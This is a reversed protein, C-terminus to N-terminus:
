KEDTRETKQHCQALCANCNGGCSGKGAKKDQIIKRVALVVAAILLIVIVLTFM